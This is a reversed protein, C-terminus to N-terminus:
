LLERLFQLVVHLLDGRGVLVRALDLVDGLQRLRDAALDAADLQTGAGLPAADHGLNKGVVREQGLSSFVGVRLIPGEPFGIRDMAARKQVHPDQGSILIHCQDQTVM